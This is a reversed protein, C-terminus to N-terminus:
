ILATITGLRSQQTGGGEIRAAANHGGGSRRGAAAQTSTHRRVDGGAPNAANRASMMTTTARAFLDYADDTRSDPSGQPSDILTHGDILATTWLDSSLSEEILTHRDQAHRDEELLTSAM